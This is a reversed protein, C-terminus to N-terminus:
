SVFGIPKIDEEEKFGKREPFTMIGVVYDWRILIQALHGEETDEHTGPTWRPNEVWVGVREDIEIVKAYINTSSVGFTALDEASRLKILVVEGRLDDLIM